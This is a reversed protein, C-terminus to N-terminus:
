RDGLVALAIVRDDESELSLCLQLDDIAVQCLHHEGLWAGTNVEFRLLGFGAFPHTVADAFYLNFTHLLGAEIAGARAPIEREIALYLGYHHLGFDRSKWVQVGEHLVFIVHRSEGKRVQIDDGVLDGEIGPM